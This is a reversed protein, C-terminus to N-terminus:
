ATGGVLPNQWIRTDEQGLRWFGVGLGRDRAIKLRNAVSTADSYWVEHPVGAEDTYSLRWSDKEPSYVPAAGYRASLAMIDDFYRGSAENAKSGGGNPWDMGYLMTGMVFKEKRPLSAVYNAVSTVWALDDQAGPTSTAWHIGWAMVFITDVHKSLEVYDFATSRPHGMVDVTKASVAQSLLKGRAHLRAALEAVFATLANRDAATIAEFDLNIGDYGYQETAAVMTDLWASRTAPDNLIKSVVATRQCNYRALVKVKRDQAYTVIPADNRGEVAGNPDCDWFTPSVTGIRRYYQRFAAYSADTSALLFAHADGTTAPPDAQAIPTVPSPPSVYGRTDVAQVSWGYTAKPALNGIDAAPAAVQAVVAGDRLVRYGRLQSGNPLAAADWTLSVSTDTVSNPRPASPTGPARHTTTFAVTGSPASAWGLSDIAVVRYTRAQLTGLGTLRVQTGQVGRVTRGGGDLLRYSSIRGGRFAKAAGWSVTAETETVGSAAPAVPASPARHGTKVTVTSSAKGARGAADVAAVQYRYTRNSSIAVATKRTKLQRVTKGDRLVRYRKAGSVADWTLTLQTDGKPRASLGAVQALAKARVNLTVKCSTRRGDLIATLTLKPQAGASTRVRMSRGRTQGVTAGDRAVRYALAKPAGKPTRWTVKLSTGAANPTAKVSTPKLRKCSTAAQAPASLVLAGTLAVPILLLKNM